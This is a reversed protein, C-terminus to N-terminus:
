LVQGRVACLNRCVAQCSERVRGNRAISTIFYKLFFISFFFGGLPINIQNNVFVFGVQDFAHSLEKHQKQLSESLLRLESKMKLALDKAVTLPACDRLENFASVFANTLAALIPHSMLSLPVIVSGSSDTCSDPSFLIRTHLFVFLCAFLCVFFSVRSISSFWM